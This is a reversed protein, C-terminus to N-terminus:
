FVYQVWQSHVIFCPRSVISLGILFYMFGLNMDSPTRAGLLKILANALVEQLEVKVNCSIYDPVPMVCLRGDPPVIDRKVSQALNARYNWIDELERYLRKLKSTNLDLIWDVNCSYGAYEIQAFLDVFKQKVQTKRDTVVTNDITVQINQKQLYGILDDVNSKVLSPIDETTYPNGYNMDILKKLSRIDFCWYNDHSDKYSFFYDSEIEDKPEYTYFDEENNCLKRNLYGKGRLKIQKNVLYKRTLAQIKILKDSEHSLKKYNSHISEIVQFYDSKKFKYPPTKNTIYHNYYRKLEKITYDKSNSTFHNLIIIDNKLLYEKRHRYCYGGCGGRQTHKCPSTDLKHICPSNNKMKKM